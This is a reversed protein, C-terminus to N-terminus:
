RDMSAMLFIEERKKDDKHFCGYAEGLTDFVRVNRAEVAIKKFGGPYEDIETLGLISIGVIEGFGSCCDGDLYYAAWKQEAIVTKKM